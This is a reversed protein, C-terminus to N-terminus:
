LNELYKLDADGLCRPMEVLCVDQWMEMLEEDTKVGLMGCVISGASTGSMVRPLLGNLHLAEVLVCCNKGLGGQYNMPIQSM